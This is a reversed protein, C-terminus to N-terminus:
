RLLRVQGRLGQADYLLTQYIGAPLTSLDLTCARGVLTQVLVHRGELDFVEARVPASSLPTFHFVGDASPNPWASIAEVPDSPMAVSMASGDCIGNGDVDHCLLRYSVGCPANAYVRLFYAGAPYIGFAASGEVAVDAWGVPVTISGVLGGGSNFLQVQMDGAAGPSEALTNVLLDEEATLSFAYWDDNDGYYFSLRGDQWGTALNIPSAEASSNNPEIDNSFAPDTGTYNWRYSVGCPSNAYFRVYYTGAGKCYTNLVTTEATSGGGVGVSWNEILGGGVNFFQVQLGDSSGAGTNEASVAIHIISEDPPSIAYWDDNDDYYFALRGEMDTNYGVTGAQASNDNDEADNGFVPATGSYSWKYSVGCPSNAYFRVFYTGAGKCITSVVTTDPVLDGGVAVSWNELLGGGVNFLQVQLGDAASTGVNEATVQIHIVGQDPPAIAYYDNNDDYYYALRGETPEDYGVPTAHVADDNDETDNAYFPASGSYHWRYSVGCPTNAYFRVFYTGTGKCVTNLVTSQPQSGGGVAASWNELLGGSSNFFQVQLGDVVSGSVNEAMVEIHIVGQDPPNIAYWDDNDDYYFAVRGESDAGYAVETAQNGNDNDEADNAYLPATGTFRLRYSVGCPVNAYVALYYIGAGRCFTSVATTDPSAGGGVAVSWNELLGGGSNFLQVQLGLPDSTGQSEAITTFTIIGQDPSVIRYWDYNDGYSYFNVHGDIDTGPDIAPSGDAETANNNPEADNLYFPATFVHKVRYAVGCPVNAYVRLYYQGAARCDLIHATQLAGSNSGVNCSWSELLGGGSNFLQLQAGDTAGGGLAYGEFTV